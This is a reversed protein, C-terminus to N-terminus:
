IREPYDEPITYIKMGYNNVGDPIIVGEKRKLKNVKFPLYNVYHHERNYKWVLDTYEPYVEELMRSKAATGENKYFEASNGGGLTQTRAKDQLFANFQVTCFGETLMDLSLITDENYRGRWRFPRGDKWKADNRILNCSYIRTNTVYPPLSSNQSAFARYQPGAMTVNEYRECFTEMVKFCTGDGLKMKVNNNLRLFNRINDDAVWHWDFGNSIAHDWAFNRAPGPGTSKTLGLNDCLEYTEKYKQPLILITAYTGKTAEVYTEYEQEEVVIFHAVKMFSLARSTLRSDARGKSPIYFPVTM